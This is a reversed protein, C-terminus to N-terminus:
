AAYRESALALGDNLSRKGKRKCYSFILARSMSRQDFAVDIEGWPFTAKLKRQPRTGMAAKLAAEWRREFTSDVTLWTRGTIRTPSARMLRGEFSVPM